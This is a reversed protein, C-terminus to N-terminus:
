KRKPKPKRSDKRQKILLEVKESIEVQEDSTFGLIECVIIDLKKQDFDERYGLWAKSMKEIDKKPMKDFNPIPADEYDGILFQLAGAGASHGNNELYLSFYSSSLYSLIIHINKEDDPTFYAFNDRAYFSNNNEYFKMRKDAFRSLFMKPSGDLDLSYWMKRNKVTSLESILCPKPNKGKKPTVTTKEGYEIYKLVKKGNESKVLKGKSENVNLLYEIADSDELLGFHIDKSITPKLYEETIGYKEITDKSLVFYDNRGTTKGRKIKGMDSLKIMEIDPVFNNESFYSIWNGIKFEQQKKEIPNFEVKSIDAKKKVYILKTINDLDISKELITIVTKVDADEFVNFQTKMLVDIRCKDRLLEQLSKGYGFGMWSEGTIFGIKGRNKLIVLSHYFFYGSLDMKSPIIYEALDSDKPIQMHEKNKLSEQRIYPPNGVIISFGPNKSETNFINPFKDKWSFADPSEKNSILSNGDLINKSLNPLKKKTSVTKFFMALRSIEVAEKNIDVGYINNEIIDRIESEENWMDLGKYLKSSDKYDRVAKHIELLIDASKVLFAGSGCAPDCITIKKFKDELEKIDEPNSYEEVLDQPDTSKGSKSLYPIITNRCIYDTIPEPTYYVGENKQQSEASGRIHELDSISQEFIHGLINVNVDTTFDFSAMLLLNSIIPNMKPHKYIIKQTDEDREIFKSLRTTRPIPNFFNPDRLDYFYINGPMEGSFLEGNFGFVKIDDSGKDFLTFMDKIGYFVSKSHNTPDAGLLKTVKNYFLRKPVFERDEAFFWFIMRNLFIQTMLIAMNKTVGERQFEKILMLRTEHFLGYFDDTLEKETLASKEQLTIVFDNELSNKSFIYVFEKLKSPDNRIEEFDFKHHKSVGYERIVLIFIKYNTCIGFEADGMYGWLQKMPTSKEKTSRTQKTFLDETKTGKAEICVSKNNSLKCQFEVFNQEFKFVKDKVPYGLIGELIIDRFDLYNTREEKLEGRELRGLWENTFEKQVDTLVINECAKDIARRNFLDNLAVM